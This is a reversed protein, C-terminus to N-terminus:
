RQARGKVVLWADRISSSPPLDRHVDLEFIEVIRHDLYELAKLVDLIRQGLEGSRRWSM